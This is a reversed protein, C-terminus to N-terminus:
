CFGHRHCLTIKCALPQIVCSVASSAAGACHLNRQSETCIGQYKSIWPSQLMLSTPAAGVRTYCLQMTTPLWKIGHKESYFMLLPSVSRPSLHILILLVQQESYSGASSLMLTLSVSTEEREVQRKHFRTQRKQIVM